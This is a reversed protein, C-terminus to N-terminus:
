ILGHRQAYATLEKLKSLGLKNRIHERHTQVTSEAIFLAEGIERATYGAADLRLVELERPSLTATSGTRREKTAAPQSRALAVAEDPALARGAVWAAAFGEEGLAARCGALTEEYLRRFPAKLPAGIAEHLAAAAGYLSVARDPEGVEAALRASAPLLTALGWTDDWRLFLDLSKSLLDAAGEVDHADLAVNGLGGLCLATGWDDKVMEFLTLGDRLHAEARARDRQRMAILGLELSAAAIGWTDDLERSLTLAETALTTMRTFDELDFAVIWRFALSRALGRAEELKRWLALAEEYLADSGDYDGLAETLAAYGTLAEARAPTEAAEAPPLALTAAVHHLGERLLSRWWWYRWLAGALRLARDADGQEIFWALTARLNDHERALSPLWSARDGEQLHPRAAEALSLYFAAHRARADRGEGSAALQELGFERITELMAFRPEDDQQVSLLLSQDVLARLDVLVDTPSRDLLNEAARLTCGGVFVSLRRFLAQQGPTLRDYSWAIAARMTQLRSPLDQPGAGLLPLRPDLRDLLAAPPLLKAWAAALEIALPIGELRRCIAAVAEANEDALAFDPNVACAREVFLAVAPNQQLVDITAPHVPDPVPLSRVRFLRESRVQLPTRSTVLICLREGDALLDAIDAGAASLREFNDLVLLVARERLEAVLCDRPTVDATERIGLSAAIAPVVQSPEAVAALPVFAVNGAFDDVLDRAIALALATKGIGGPGTLTVLRAGDDRLWARVAAVDDARGILTTPSQPLRPLPTARGTTM